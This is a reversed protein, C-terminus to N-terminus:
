LAPILVLCEPCLIGVGIGIGIGIGIGLGTATDKNMRNPIPPTPEPDPEPCKKKKDNWCRGIPPSGRRLWEDHGEKIEKRSRVRPGVPDKWCNHFFWQFNPDNYGYWPDSKTL